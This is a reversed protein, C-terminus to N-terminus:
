RRKRLRRNDDGKRSEDIAIHDWEKLNRLVQYPGSVVEDGPELGELVEIDMEGTIGTKAPRFRARGDRMLFVGEIEKRNQRDRHALPKEEEGSVPEKPAVYSGAA